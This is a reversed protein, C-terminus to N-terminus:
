TRALWKKDPQRLRNNESNQVMKRYNEPIPTPPPLPVDGVGIWGAAVFSNLVSRNHDDGHLIPATRHGELYEDFLEDPGDFVDCRAYDVLFVTPVADRTVLIDKLILNTRVRQKLIDLWVTSAQRIIDIRVDPAFDEPRLSAVTDGIIEQILVAHVFRDQGPM